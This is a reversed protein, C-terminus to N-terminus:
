RLVDAQGLMSDTLAWPGCFKRVPAALHHSLYRNNTGDLNGQLYPTFTMTIADGEGLFEEATYDM